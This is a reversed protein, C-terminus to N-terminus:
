LSYISKRLRLTFVCVRIESLQLCDSPHPSPHSYSTVCQSIYSQDIQRCRWPHALLLWLELLITVSTVLQLSVLQYTRIKHLVSNSPGIRPYSCPIPNGCDMWDVRSMSTLRVASNFHCKTALEEDQKFIVLTNTQLKSGNDLRPLM